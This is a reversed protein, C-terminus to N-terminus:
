IHTYTLARAPSQVLYCFRSYLITHKYSKEIDKGSGFFFFFCLITTDCWSKLRPTYTSIYIHLIFSFIGIPINIKITDIQQPWRRKSAQNNMQVIRTTSRSKENICVYSKEVCSFFSLFFFICVFILLLLLLLVVCFDFQTHTTRM